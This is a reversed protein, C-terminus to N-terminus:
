NKKIRDFRWYYGKCLLIRNVNWFERLAKLSVFVGLHVKTNNIYLALGEYYPIKEKKIKITM